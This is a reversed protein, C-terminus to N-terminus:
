GTLPWRRPLIRETREMYERYAEGFEALMMEEERPVRSVYLPLFAILMAWGAIWNRLLLPNALAWLWLGAYIPHRIVGYIGDTVLEQGERVDLKPSWNQGLDRYARWLVWLAGGILIVGLWGAWSPLPYDAFDLWPTFIYLLPLVQWCVFTVMDLAIDVPRTYEAAIQSRRFRRAHPTYIALFYVAYVILYVIQFTTM